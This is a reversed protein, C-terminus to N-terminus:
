LISQSPDASWSCTRAVFPIPYLVILGLIYSSILYSLTLHTELGPGPGQQLLPHLVIFDLIYSIILYPPVPNYSLGPHPRWCTTKTMHQETVIFSVARCPRRPSIALGASLVPNLVAM